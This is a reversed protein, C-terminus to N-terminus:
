KLLSRGHMPGNNHCTMPSLAQFTTSGEHIKGLLWIRGNKLTGVKTEGITGETHGGASAM